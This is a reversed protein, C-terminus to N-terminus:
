NAAEDNKGETGVGIGNGGRRRGDVSWGKIGGEREKGEVNELALWIMLAVPEIDYDDDHMPLRLFVNPRIVYTPKGM